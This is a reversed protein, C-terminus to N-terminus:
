RNTLLAAGIAGALEGLKAKRIKVYKRSLPSIARKDVEKKAQEIFLPFSNAIGGGLIFVQPDLINVINSLGIGLYRGYERYIKQAKKDGRKAMESLEQPSFGQKLFFKASCYDELSGDSDIMMHGAEGASGFTGRYIKGAMVIGGGVGSGLTMGFVTRAGKGAGWLTEALAFCDADNAMVTKIKVKKQIIKALRVNRLCRINVPNLILDGKLDLPSPVGLGIGSIKSKPLNSILREINKVLVEILKAKSKPTAIRGTRVIKSNKLLVFNIKTGGIDVGIKYM